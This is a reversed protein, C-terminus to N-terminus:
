PKVRYPRPRSGDAEYGDTRTLLDLDDVGRRLERWSTEAADRALGVLEDRFVWQDRGAGGLGRVALRALGPTRRRLLDAERVGLRLMTTTSVVSASALLRLVFFRGVLRVKDANKV